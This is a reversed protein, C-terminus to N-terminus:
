DSHRRLVERLLAVSAEYISSLPHERCHMDVFAAIAANDPLSIVEEHLMIRHANWGSLFGQVWGVLTDEIFPYENDRTEIWTGCSIVGAGVIVNPKDSAQAWPAALQAAVLLSAGIAPSRPVRSRRKKVIQRM